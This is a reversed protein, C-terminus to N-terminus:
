IYDGKKNWYNTVIIETCKRNNANCNIMRKVQLTDINYKQYLDRMFNTDSNTLMCKVGKESLREFLRALRVHDVGSFGGVQYTDFTNYYPSDFFVFDGPKASECATEFDGNLIDASRLLGSVDNMNYEDYIRIINKHAFPVNFLGKSNVRYLGNYCTKNLFIFLSASEINLIDNAILDNYIARKSYYYSEKEADTQYANYENELVSLISILDDKHSQVQRYLNVLQSNTDNIISRSPMMEFFLAGGGFFPEYYTGFSKPLRSSIESLLQRKGGAWKIIPSAM